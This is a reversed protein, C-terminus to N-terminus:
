KKKKPHMGTGRVAVSVYVGQGEGGGARDGASGRGAPRIASLGGAAGAARGPRKMRGARPSTVVPNASSDCDPMRERPMDSLVRGLACTTDGAAPITAKAPGNRSYPLITMM